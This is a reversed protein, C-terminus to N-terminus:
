GSLLACLEAFQYDQGEIRPSPVLSVLYDSDLWVGRTLCSAQMRALGERQEWTMPVCRRTIADDLTDAGPHPWSIRAEMRCTAIPLDGLPITMSSRAQQMLGPLEKVNNGERLRNAVGADLWAWANKNHRGGSRGFFNCGDFQAACVEPKGHVWEGVIVVLAHQAPYNEFFNWPADALGYPAALELIKTRKIEGTM